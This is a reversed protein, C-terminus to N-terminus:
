RGKLLRFNNYKTHKNFEWVNLRQIVSDNSLFPYHPNNRNRIVDAIEDIHIYLVFRMM